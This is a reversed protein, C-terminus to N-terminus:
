SLTVTKWTTGGDDSVKLVGSDDKIQLSGLTIIGSIDSNSMYVTNNSTATVGSRGLIVIGYNGNGITNGSGFVLNNSGNFNNGSGWAFNGSVSSNFNNYGGWVFCNSAPVTSQGNILNYSGISNPHDGMLFNYSGTSQGSVSIFLNGNGNICQNGAGFLVNDSGSSTCSNNAGAVINNTGGSLTANSAAIIVNNTGTPSSIMGQSAIIASVSGAVISAGGSSIISNRSRSASSTISCGDSSLMTNSDGVSITSGSSGSILNTGATLSGALVENGDWDLTRANARQTSTGNGVTEVYKYRNTATFKSYPFSSDGSTDQTCQWLTTGNKVKDGVSYPTNAEWVPFDDLSDPLNFEGLSIASGGNTTVSHGFAISRNGNAIAGEGIAVSYDGNSIGECIAVSNTGIAKANQSLSVSYNGVAYGNSAFSRLGSAKGNCQSHSSDGSAQSYLYVSINSTTNIGITLTTKNSVSDYTANTIKYSNNSYIVYANKYYTKDGNMTFTNTGAYTLSLTESAYGSDSHSYMGFACSRGEAHSYNGAAKTTGTLISSIISNTGTGAAVKPKNKIFDIATATTQDWDAQVQTSGVSEWVPAEDSGDVGVCVYEEFTESGSLGVLYTDGIEAETPLEAVSDVRGKIQMPTQLNDLKIRDESTFAVSEQGNVNISPVEVPDTFTFKDKASDFEVTNDKITTTFSNSGWSQTTQEQIENFKGM